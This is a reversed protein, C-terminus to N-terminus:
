LLNQFLLQITALFNLLFFIDDAGDALCRANDGGDGGGDGASESGM